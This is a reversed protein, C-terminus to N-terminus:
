AAEYIFNCEVVDTNAWTHPITATIGVHTAYTSDAKNVRFGATTTTSQYVFGTYGITGTDTFAADGILFNSDPAATATVPLSFLLGTSNPKNGGAFVISVKGIVTKGIQTYKAEVTSNSTAAGTWTPTWSTWAGGSEGAGTALKANTIAGDLIESGDALGSFNANLEASRIVSEPTFTIM